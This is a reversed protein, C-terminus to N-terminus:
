GPLGGKEDMVAIYKKVERRLPLLPYDVPGINDIIVENIGTPKTEVTFDVQSEVTKTILDIVLVGSFLRRYYIPVDKRILNKIATVRM